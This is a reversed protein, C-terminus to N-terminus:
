TTPESSPNKIERKVTRKEKAEKKKREREIRDEEQFRRYEEEGKLISPDLKEDYGDDRKTFDVQPFHVSGKYFRPLYLTERDANTFTIGYRINQLADLTTFYIRDWGTAQKKLWKMDTDNRTIYLIADESAYQLCMDLFVREYYRKNKLNTEVEIVCFQRTDSALADPVKKRLNEKRLIREPTWEHFALLLEFLIRVDTVCEDHEWAKDNIEKLAKLRNWLKHEKLVQVGKPTTVYLRKEGVRLRIVKLYGANVLIRVRKMPVQFFDRSEPFFMVGIQRLTMFNQELCWRLILLDRDNVIM